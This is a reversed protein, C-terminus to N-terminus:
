DPEAYKLNLKYTVKFQGQIGQELRHAIMGSKVYLKPNVQGEITIFDPGSSSSVLCFLHRNTTQEAQWWQDLVSPYNSTIRWVTTPFVNNLQKLKPTLRSKLDNLLLLKYQNCGGSAAGIM